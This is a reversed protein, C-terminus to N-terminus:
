TLVQPEKVRKLLARVPLIIDGNDKEMGTKIMKVSTMVTSHDKEFIEGIKTFPIKLLQRCLYMAIQRPFVCDKTKVKGTIDTPRIGFYQATIEIILVPTLAAQKEENLLDHLFQAALLATIQKAEYHKLHSRLVLAELAKICSTANSFSEALFAIVKQHIPFHMVQSKISLIEKIEEDTPINLPLSIGWEFRSILRQEVFTLASPPCNASLIIQKGEMHLTNFTHFFEEQTAGKKSLEQVDDIILVDANRYTDRFNFMEGARIASVVHDTFTSTKSYLVHVGKLKLAHAISMLLHTKGVGVGGFLYIPNYKPTSLDLVEDIVQYVIQNSSLPQLSDFTCYPDLEDFSLSFKPKEDKIQAKFSRSKKDKQEIPDGEVSLHVKIKRNNNNTLGQQLKPRIHEEFWMAQFADQAELYLNGADFKIVKLSKLWKDITASGFHNKQSEVFKDWVIM